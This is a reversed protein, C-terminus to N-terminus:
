HLDGYKMTLTDIKSHSNNLNIVSLRNCAHLNNLKEEFKIRLRVEEEHSKQNKHHEDEIRVRANREVM